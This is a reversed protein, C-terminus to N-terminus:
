LLFLGIHCGNPYTRLFELMFKCQFTRILLTFHLRLRRNTREDLLELAAFLVKVPPFMTDQGELADLLICSSALTRALGFMDMLELRM